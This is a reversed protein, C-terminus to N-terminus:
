VATTVGSLGLEEPGIGVEDLLASMGVDVVILRTLVRSGIGVVIIM